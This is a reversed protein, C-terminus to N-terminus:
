QTEFIKAAVLRDYLQGFPRHYILFLYENETEQANGEFRALDLAESGKPVFAYLYDYYGQKLLATLQYGKKEPAYEMRYQPLPRWDSFGGILYVDGGQQEEAQLTFSVHIYEARLDSGQIDRNEPFWRGNLDRRFMYVMDPRVFDEFLEVYWDYRTSRIARVQPGRFQLNRLDLPRFEKGAPFVIKDQFDYVLADERQFLPNLGTVAHDWRGNQLVAMRIEAQPMNVRINPHRVLFDLEQHTRLKGVDAARQLQPEVYFQTEVIMFRRTLILDKEDADLYVKLLYNGSYRFSMNANPLELEYHTYPTLTNFSNNWTVIRDETYGEIYDFKLVRESPTWDANCHEVTYYYNKADADLDDFSLLLPNGGGLELIPYGTEVNKPHLRVSRINEVYVFDYPRPLAYVYEEDPQAGLLVPLLLLLLVLKNM